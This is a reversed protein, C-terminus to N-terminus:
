AIELDALALDQRFIFGSEREMAVLERWLEPNHKAGNRLDSRSGLICLACSLRENGYVYAPHGPWGILATPDGAAYRQRHDALAALSTGCAEWVDADTWRLLPRWTLALRQRQDRLALADSISLQQLGSATIQRRMECAPKKARAYSEAARVGEASIVLKWERLYRDIPGRKMDSTCYRQQASPWPPKGTGDLTQMREKIRDILDGGSSREVIVLEVDAADCIARCHALTQPWEARGLHAHVAVLDGRWGHARHAAACANLLAQSDKGGSISIVLAAGRDLAARIEPPINLPRM